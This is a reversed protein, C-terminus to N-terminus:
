PPSHPFTPLTRQFYFTIQSPNPRLPHRTLRQQPTPPPQLLSTSPLIDITAVLILRLHPNPGPILIVELHCNPPKSSYILKLLPYSTRADSHHSPTIASTSSTPRNGPTLRQHPTPRFASYHDPCFPHCSSHTASQTSYPCWPQYQPQVQLFRQKM